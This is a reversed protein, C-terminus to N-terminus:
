HSTMWLSRESLSLTLLEEQQGNSSVATRFPMSIECVGGRPSGARLSLHASGNYTQRLRQM